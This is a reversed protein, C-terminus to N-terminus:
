LLEEIYKSLNVPLFRSPFRKVAFGDRDILFKTFNWKISKTGAVGRANTKIFNFLPLCKEGNVCIKSFVSFGVQYTAECFHRIEQDTGPEQRGFQNCPFALVDFGREKYQEYLLNLGHYQSTFGCQSAVNVILLVKGSYARMSVVDGNADIVNFDYVTQIQNTMKKM